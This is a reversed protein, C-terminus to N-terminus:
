IESSKLLCLKNINSKENNQLKTVWVKKNQLRYSVGHEKLIVTCNLLLADM